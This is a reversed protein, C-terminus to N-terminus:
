MKISGVQNCLFILVFFLINCNVCLFLFKFSYRKKCVESDCIRIRNRSSNITSNEKKRLIMLCFSKYCKCSSTKKESLCDNVISETETCYTRICTVM